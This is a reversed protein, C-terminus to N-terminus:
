KECCFAPHIMARSVLSTSATLSVSESPRGTSSDLATSSGTATMVSSIASQRSPRTTNATTGGDTASERQNWRVEATASSSVRLRIAATM